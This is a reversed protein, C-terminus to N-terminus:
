FKIGALVKARVEEEQVAKKLKERELNERRTQDSRLKNEYVKNVVPIWNKFHDVVTQAEHDRASIVARNEFFQFQEPGKGMVSSYSGMNKFAWIWDPTAKHNLLITLNNGSWDIGVIKMPDQILHDTVDTSSVVTQKLSDIRQRIVEDQSRSLIEKKIEDISQFRDKPQQMMMREVIKDLFAHPLSIEGIKKFNTGHATMKTFLENLILGLAFIDAQHGVLGGRIRQEPAAYQFNALRADDKTEVATLMDEEAFRAIGFDGIVCSHCNDDVLINEPKLDRHIVNLLHAAEVGNLIKHFVSFADKPELTPIKTRLSCKFLPMVFFPDGLDTVGADIVTLINPHKNRACFYYENKFRKVKEKTARKSDLIKAAFYENEENKVKFVVGNGGQGLIEVVSYQTFPTRITEPKKM